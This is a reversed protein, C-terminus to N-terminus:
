QEDRVGLKELLVDLSEVDPLLLLKSPTEQGDCVFSGDLFMLKDGTFNIMVMPVMLIAGAMNITHAPVSLGINLGALNSLATTFTSIMINGSEVLASKCIEDLESYDNITKGLISELVINIFDMDQMYLVIGNLDGSMRVLIASVVNEPGGLLDPADNISVLEAKPVNIKVGKGLISSLATAANGAGISAIERIADLQMGRLEDYGKM